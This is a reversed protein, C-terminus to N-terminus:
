GTESSPIPAHRGPALARETTQRVEAPAGAILFRHVPGHAASPPDHHFEIGQEVLYRALLCASDLGMVTAESWTKGFCHFANPGIVVANSV